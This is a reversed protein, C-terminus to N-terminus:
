RRSYPGNGRTYILLVGHASGTGYRAGARVAPVYEISEVQNLPLNMLYYPGDPIPMDDVYVQVPTCPTDGERSGAVSKPGTFSVMPRGSEICVGVRMRNRYVDFVRVGPITRVLDGVHLAGRGLEEIEERVLLDRRTGIARTELKEASLATVTLGDLEVERVPEARRGEADPERTRIERVEGGEERLGVVAVRRRPRQPGVLPMRIWWRRVIWAGTPLREFEIRGGVRDGGRGLKLGTYRYELHRLEATRADVWLVGRIDPLKRGRIPEFALGVLGREEGEGAQVRFCHGDLFEDSLLVQADPAYFVAADGDDRIFGERALTEAPLSVYTNEGLGSDEHLRESRVRLTRPDLEREHRVMRFRFLRREKGWAAANLAKRAEEWLAATEAGEAPRVRCPRRVGTVVLGELHVADAGVSMRYDLAQGVALELPPSVTTPYGIREARLRYTGGGPADLVFRGAEDTLTREREGGGADLLVVLTGAVPKGAPDVLEGRVTQAGLPLATGLLLLVVLALLAPM